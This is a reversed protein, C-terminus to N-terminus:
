ARAEGGRATAGAQVRLVDLLFDNYERAIEAYNKAGMINYKYNKFVTVRQNSQAVAEERVEEERVRRRLGPFSQPEYTNALCDSEYWGKLDLTAGSELAAGSLKLDGFAVINHTKVNKMRVGPRAASLMTLLRNFALVGARVSRCGLCTAKQAGGPERPPFLMITVNAPDRLSVMVVEFRNTTVSFGDYARTFSELSMAPEFAATMVVNSVCPATASVLRRADEGATM